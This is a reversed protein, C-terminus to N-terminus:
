LDVDTEKKPEVTGGGQRKNVNGVSRQLQATAEQSKFTIYLAWVGVLLSLLGSLLQIVVITNELNPNSKDLFYLIVLAILGVATGTAIIFLFTYWLFVFLRKFTLSIRKAKLEDLIRKQEETAIQVELDTNRSCLKNKM